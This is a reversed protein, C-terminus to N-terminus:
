VWKNYGKLVVFTETASIGEVKSLSETLFKVLGKNSDVLVDILMDYRGSVISVSLVEELESIEEAKNDLLNARAVNISITAIQQNALVNTDRLAKIKLIGANQMRKIRQRITSESLGLQKAMKTNTIYENSLLTIIQWDTKDPQM